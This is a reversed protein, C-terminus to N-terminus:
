TPIYGDDILKTGEELSTKKVRGCHPCRVAQITPNKKAFEAIDQLSYRRHGGETVETPKLRGKLDWNRITEQSVKLIESVTNISLLHNEM